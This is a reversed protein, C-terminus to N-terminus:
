DKKTAKRLEEANQALESIVLKMRDITQRKFEGDM